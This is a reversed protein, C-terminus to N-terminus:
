FHLLLEVFVTFFFPVGSLRFFSFPLPFLGLGGTFRDPTVSLPDNSPFFFGTFEV